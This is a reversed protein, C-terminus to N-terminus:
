RSSCRASARRRQGAGLRGTSSWCRPATRRATARVAGDDPSRASTRRRRGARARAARRRGGAGRRPEGGPGPRPLRPATAVALNWDVMESGGISTMDDGTRQRDRKPPSRADTGGGPRPGPPGATLRRHARHGPPGAGGPRRAPTRRRGDAMFAFALLRGSADVVTGALTNVGTSRAPRPASWGPAAARRTRVPRSLTGTFGAVPLGTLVPRLEPHAPRRGRALLRALMRPPSATRTRCAAATPSSRATWRSGLGACSRAAGGDRRRRLEAPSGTARPRGAPGAGRRHRQRQQDADARGTRAAAGLHAGALQAAAPPASGAAPAGQVTVGHAGLLAAFADRPPRAPDSARAASRQRPATM